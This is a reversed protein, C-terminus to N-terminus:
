RCLHERFEATLPYVYIDKVPVRLRQHLDQRSRGTTHGIKQRNASRYCTGAFRGRDVFTEVLVLPHGYRAQWDAKLRQLCAGLIFSALHAMKVWPLILFRTNNATLKLNARRAAASWGIFRDRDAVKWAAAGFLLCGLPRRYRDAMM